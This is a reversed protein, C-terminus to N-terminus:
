AEGDGTAGAEPLPLNLWDRLQRLVTVAGQGRLASFLVPTVTPYAATEETAQRLVELQAEHAPKYAKNLLLLV